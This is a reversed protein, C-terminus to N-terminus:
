RTLRQSGVWGRLWSALRLVQQLQQLQRNARRYRWRLRMTSQQGAVLADRQGKLASETNHAVDGLMGCLQRLSQRLQWLRWAVGLCLLALCCNFGIVFFFM